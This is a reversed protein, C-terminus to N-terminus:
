KSTQAHKASTPAANRLYLREAVAAQAIWDIHIPQASTLVTASQRISFPHEDYLTRWAVAFCQEIEAQFPRLFPATNFLRHLSSPFLSEGASASLAQLIAQLDKAQMTQATKHRMSKALTAIPGPNKPWPLWDKLWMWYMMLIVGITSFLILGLLPTQENFPIPLLDAHRKTEALPYPLVPSYYFPQTPIMIEQVPKEKTKLVLAPTKLTQAIEVTAFIQWTLYLKITENQQTYTATSLDLWPKVYGTLPLSEEDLTTHKPLTLTITQHIFDGLRYGSDRMAVEVNIPPADSGLVTVPLCLMLIFYYLCKM